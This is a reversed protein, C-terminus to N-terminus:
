GERRRSQERFLLTQQRVVSLLAERAWTGLRQRQAAAMMALEREEAETVRFQVQVTRVDERYAKPPRGRKSAM